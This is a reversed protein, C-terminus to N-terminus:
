VDQQGVFELRAGRRHPQRSCRGALHEGAGDRSQVRALHDDVVVLVQRAPERRAPPILVQYEMPRRTLLSPAMASTRQALGASLALMAGPEFIMATLPLMKEASARWAAILSALPLVSGM